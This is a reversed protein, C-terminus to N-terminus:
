TIWYIKSMMEECLKKLTPLSLKRQAGQEGADKVICALVAFGQGRNQGPWKKDSPQACLISSAPPFTTAQVSSSLFGQAWAGPALRQSCHAALEPTSGPPTAVPLQGQKKRAAWVTGWHSPSAGGSRRNGSCGALPFPPTRPYPVRMATNGAEHAPSVGPDMNEQLLFAGSNLPCPGPSTQLPGHFRWHGQPRPGTPWESDQWPVSPWFGPTRTQRGM